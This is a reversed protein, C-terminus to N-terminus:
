SRKEAMYKPIDDINPITFRKTQLDHLKGKITSFELDRLPIFVKQLWPV